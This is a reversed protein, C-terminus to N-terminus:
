FFVRIRCMVGCAHQVKEKVKAEDRGEWLERQWFRNYRLEPGPVREGEPEWGRASLQSRSIRHHFTPDEGVSYFLPSRSLRNVLHMAASFLCFSFLALSLLSSDCNTLLNITDHRPCPVGITPTTLGRNSGVESYM